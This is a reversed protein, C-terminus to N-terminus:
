PKLLAYFDFAAFKTEATVQKSSLGMGPGEALHQGQECGSAAVAPFLSLKPSWRIILYFLGVFSVFSSLM